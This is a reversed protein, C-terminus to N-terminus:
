SPTPLRCTQSSTSSWPSYYVMRLTASCYISLHQFCQQWLDLPTSPNFDLVSLYLTKLQCPRALSIFKQFVLPNDPTNLYLSPIQTRFRAGSALLLDVDDNHISLGLNQLSQSTLVHPFASAALCSVQLRRLRTMQTVVVSLAHKLVDNSDSSRLTLDTLSHGLCSIEAFLPLASPCDPVVNRIDISEIRPHLILGTFVCGKEDFGSSAKFSRLNPLMPKPMDRKLTLIAEEEVDRADYSLSYVRKAYKSFVVVDASTISRRFSQSPPSYQLPLVRLLANLACVIMGYDDEEWLDPPMVRLLVAIEIDDRWLVDLATEHFARCTRAISPLSKLECGAFIMHQLEAIRLVSHMDEVVPVFPALSNTTHPM